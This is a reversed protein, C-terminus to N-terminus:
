VMRAISLVIKQPLKLLQNDLAWVMMDLESTIGFNLKHSHPSDPREAVGSQSLLAQRRDCFTRVGDLDM